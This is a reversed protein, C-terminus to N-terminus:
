ISSSLDMPFPFKLHKGNSKKGVNRLTQLHQSGKKSVQGLGSFSIADLLLFSPRTEQGFGVHQNYICRDVNPCSEIKQGGDNKM